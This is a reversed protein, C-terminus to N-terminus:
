KMWENMIEYMWENNWENMREALILGQFFHMSLVSSHFVYNPFLHILIPEKIWPNMWESM